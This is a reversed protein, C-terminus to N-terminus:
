KKTMKRRNGSSVDAPLSELGLSRKARLRQGSREDRANTASGRAASGRDKKGTEMQSPSIEDTPAQSGKENSHARTLMRTGASACDAPAAEAEIDRGMKPKIRALTTQAHADVESGHTSSM